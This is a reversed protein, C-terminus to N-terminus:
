QGGEWVDSSAAEPPVEMLYTVAGAHNLDVRDGYKKPNWKSLLKFRLDVRNRTWQVHAPDIKDGCPTANREPPADLIAIADEAIADAGIDRAEAFRASFDKDDRLWRYVTTWAPHEDDRCWERLSKGEAIWECIEDAIEPTFVSPRGRGRRPADTDPTTTM